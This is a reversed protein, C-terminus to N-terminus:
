LINYSLLLKVGSDREFTNENFFSNNKLDMLGFYPIVYVSFKDSINRKYLLFLSANWKNFGKVDMNQSYSSVPTVTNGSISYVNVKGYSNILYSLTGGVGVANYKGLKYEIQLPLTIYYLRQTTLATDKANYVFDYNVHKIIFQTSGMNGLTSFQLGTKVSLKENLSKTYGIGIVPYIGNGQATDGYKWGFSYGGGLEVSVSSKPIPKPFVPQRYQAIASISDTVKYKNDDLPLYLEDLLNLEFANEYKDNKLGYQGPTNIITFTPTNSSNVKVSNNAEQKDENNKIATKNDTLPHKNNKISKSNVVSAIPLSPQKQLMTKIKYDSTKKAASTKAVVKSNNAPSEKMPSNQAPKANKDTLQKVDKNETPTNAKSIVPVLTKSEPMQQKVVVPMTTVDAKYNYLSVAEYIGFSCMLGALCIVAIVRRKKQKRLSDILSRANQWNGEDLPQEQGLKSRLIDNFNGRTSM